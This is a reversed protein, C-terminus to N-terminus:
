SGGGAPTLEAASPTWGEPLGDSLFLLALCTFYTSEVAGYRNAFNPKLFYGPNLHPKDYNTSMRNAEPPAPEHVTPPLIQQLAVLSTSHLIVRNKVRGWYGESAVQRDALWDALENWANFDVRGVKGRLRAATLHPLIDFPTRTDNTAMLSSKGQIMEHVLSRCPDIELASQRAQGAVLAQITLLGGAGRCTSALTVPQPLRPFQEPKIQPITPLWAFSAVPQSINAETWHGAPTRANNIARTAMDLIERATRPAPFDGTLPSVGTPQLAKPLEPRWTRLPLRDNEYAIRLALLALATSELDASIQNHILYPLSEVVIHAGQFKLRLRGVQREGFLDFLLMGQQTIWPLQAQLAALQADLREIDERLRTARVSPKGKPNKRQELTLETQATKREDSWRTMVRLAASVMAPNVAVPGWLGAAPGTTIQADLLKTACRETWEKFDSGPMVALGATLWALDATHDPLGYTLLLQLLNNGPQTVLPDDGRIGSRRLALIALANNGLAGYPWQVAVEKEVIPSPIQKVIPGNPDPVLRTETTNKSPDPGVIRRRTVKRLPDTPSKGGIMVEYTEYKYGPITVEVEKFHVTNTKWGIVRPSALTFFWDGDNTASVSRLHQIGKLVTPTVDMPLVPEPNSQCWGVATVGLVALLIIRKM